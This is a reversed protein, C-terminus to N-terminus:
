IHCSGCDWHRLRLPGTSHFQDSFFVLAEREEASIVAAICLNLYFAALRLDQIRGIIVFLFM